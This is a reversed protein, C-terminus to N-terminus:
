KLPLNGQQPDDRHLRRGQHVAAIAAKVDSIALSARAIIWPTTAVVQSAPLTGERILRRIVTESVKLEECAQDITLWKDTNRHNTLRHYSRASHVSHVRWTKGGGTRYGLRNLNAAITQDSCVKSLEEILELPTKDLSAVKTGKTNRPVQLESHVGGKWHIVLLHNLRKEDDSIVIEEVVTRLVRKKLQASAKSDNWLGRLDNGLDILQAKEDESLTQRQNKAQQCQQELEAVRALAANWRTELEGAVLRNAPDVADYQRQARDAKYSAQELALQLSKYKEDEQQDFQEM